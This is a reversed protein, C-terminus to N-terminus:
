HVKVALEYVSNAYAMITFDKTTVSRKCQPNSNLHRFISSSYDSNLHEDVRTTFHRRTRGVYSSNCRACKFKYVVHSKFCEPLSDKTSFYNKIKSTSFLLRVSKDTKCFKKYIKTLCKKTYASYDGIYPLVFYRIEKNQEEENGGTYKKDLFEKINREIIKVPFCNRSLHYTLKKVDLDFGVWTNNIKFIRDLLTKILNFKYNQPVFSRFNMFLGTFTSKHYVSTELGEKNNILVDLFPLKGNESEEKTFKINKHQKNLYDFFSLADERNEFVAFIDDVNRRYFVPKTGEFGNIWKAENHGMFLNALTPALQDWQM